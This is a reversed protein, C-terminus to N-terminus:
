DMFSFPQKANYKKKYGLSELVYDGNYRIFEGM